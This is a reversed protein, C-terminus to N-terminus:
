WYSRNLKYDQNINAIKKRLHKWVGRPYGRKRWLSVEKNGPRNHRSDFKTEVFGLEKLATAAMLQKKNTTAIFMNTKQFAKDYEPDYGETERSVIGETIDAKISEITVNQYENADCPFDGIVLIGCCSEESYVSITM